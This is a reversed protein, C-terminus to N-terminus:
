KKKSAKHRKSKGSKKRKDLRTWYYYTSEMMHPFATVEQPETTGPQIRYIRHSERLGFPKRVIIPVDIRNDLDDVTTYAGDALIDDAITGPGGLSSPGAFYPHLGRIEVPDVYMVLTSQSPSNIVQSVCGTSFLIKARPMVM